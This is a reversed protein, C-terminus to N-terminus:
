PVCGAWLWFEHLKDLNPGMKAGIIEWNGGGTPTYLGTLSVTGYPTSGVPFYQTSWSVDESTGDSFNATLAIQFPTCGPHAVGQLTTGTLQALRAPEWVRVNHTTSTTTGNLTATGTIVAQGVSHTAAQQRLPTSAGDISVIGPASSTWTAASTVNWQYGPLGSFTAVARVPFTTGLPVNNATPRIYFTTPTGLTAMSPAAQIAISAKGGVEGLSGMAVAVEGPAADTLATVWGDSAVDVLAPSCTSFTVRDTGDRLSGDAYFVKASLPLAQGQYMGTSPPSLVLARAAGPIRPDACAGDFIGNLYLLRTASPLGDGLTATVNFYGNSRATNLALVNGFLVNYGYGADSWVTTTTLDETDDPGFTGVVALTECSGHTRHNVGDALGDIRLSQLSALRAPSWVRLNASATMGGFSVDISGIGLSQGSYSAVGGQTASLDLGTTTWQAQATVDVFAGVANDYMALAQFPTTGPGTVNAAPPVLKLAVVRPALAVTECTAVCASAPNPAVVFRHSTMAGLADSVVVDIAPADGSDFCNPATWVM